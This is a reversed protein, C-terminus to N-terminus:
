LGFEDAIFLIRRRFDPHDLILSNVGVEKNFLMKKPQSRLNKLLEVLEDNSLRQDGNHDVKRWDVVQLDKTASSLPKIDDRKKLLPDIAPQVASEIQEDSMVIGYVDRLHTLKTSLFVSPAVKRANSEDIGDLPYQTIMRMLEVNSIPGVREPNLSELWRIEDVLVTIAEVRQGLRILGNITAESGLVSAAHYDSMLEASRSAKQMFVRSVFTLARSILFFGLLVLARIGAAILNGDILLSNAIALVLRVYIYLYIIDIFFGPMRTLITIFSDNNKIHGLEHTIIAKIEDENLVDLINSHVVVISGFLPLSFTYANPLPSSMLYIKDVTVKSKKALDLTWSVIDDRSYKRQWPIDKNFKPHLESLDPRRLMQAASVYLMVIQMISIGIFLGASLLPNTRSFNIGVVLLTSDDLYLISVIFIQIIDLILFAYIATWKERSVDEIM